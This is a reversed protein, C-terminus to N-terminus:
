AKYKSQLGNKRTKSQKSAWGVKIGSIVTRLQYDNHTALQNRWISIQKIWDETTRTLKKFTIGKQQHYNPIVSENEYYKAIGRQESDIWITKYM